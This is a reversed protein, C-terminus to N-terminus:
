HYQFWRRLGQTDEQKPTNRGYTRYTNTKHNFCLLLDNKYSIYSSNIVTQIVAKEYFFAGNREIVVYAFTPINSLGLFDLVIRYAYETPSLQRALLITQKHPM